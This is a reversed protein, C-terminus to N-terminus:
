LVEVPDGVRVAGPREVRAYVGFDIAGDESQGRYGKILGLADLDREGSEPDRTTVVCRPVPGGVRVVAEGLRLLRSEWADEEHAACGALTFLMRFRRGDVERGAEHALRAVSEESVLTVPESHCAGSRDPRAIRVPHGAFRSLPEAWPGEVVRAEVLRGHFDCRLLEGAGLASGELESGDPFRLALRESEADYAAAVVVPWATRSSRLRRGREDVLFFRRNEVVGDAGLTVADPHALAFGKVPTM